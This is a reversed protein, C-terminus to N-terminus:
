FPMIPLDSSELAVPAYKKDKETNNKKEFIIATNM